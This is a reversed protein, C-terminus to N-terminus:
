NRNIKEAWKRYVALGVEGCKEPHFQTGFINDKLISSCYKVGAYSSTSLIFEDQKPQCYYSHVYYMYELDALPELPTGKKDQNENLKTQRWSTLPVRVKTGDDLKKKFPEVSGEILNLGETKGHELSHSFLLQMGLCIGFFPKGNKAEEQLPLILNLEKLNEMAKKFAGVGPLIIGKAAKLDEPSSTLKSKLGLHECAQQVSFLNGLGLDIIAIDFNSM